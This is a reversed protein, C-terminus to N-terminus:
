LSTQRCAREGEGGTLIGVVEDASVVAGTLGGILSANKAAIRTLKAAIFADEKQPYKKRLYSPNSREWYNRFSKRVLRFLWEGSKFAPLGGLEEVDQKTNKLKERLSGGPEGDNDM